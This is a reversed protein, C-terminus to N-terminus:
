QGICYLADMTRMYLRRGIFFPTARQPGLTNTAVLDFTKGARFVVTQGNEAVVYIYGGASTPNATITGMRTRLRKDFVREGTKRHLANLYGSSSVVYLYDGAVVAAARYIDRRVVRRRLTGELSGAWRPSNQDKGVGKAFPTVAIAVTKLDRLYANSDNSLGNFFSPTSRAGDKFEENEWPTRTESTNGIFYLTDEEWTPATYWVFGLDKKLIKGDRPRVMHGDPTVIYRHKGDEIVQPSGYHRYEEGKWRIEGTQPDLGLLNRYGVVLTGDVLVPSAASGNRFGMMPQLAPGLWRIWRRTGKLSYSAVVGNGFIAYLYKGDSVPTPSAYGILDKDQKLSFPEGRMIINQEKEMERELRTLREKLSPDANTKRLDRKLRNQELQLNRLREAAAEAGKLAAQAKEKERDDLVSIVDHSAQWIIKGTQANLALLETPEATTFVWNKVVIPSANSVGPMETKWRINEGRSWHTPPTVNTFQASGDNRWGVTQAELSPCIVMGAALIGCALFGGM